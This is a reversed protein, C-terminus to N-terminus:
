ILKVNGYIYNSILIIAALSYQKMRNEFQVSKTQLYSKRNLKLNSGDNGIRGKTRPAKHQKSKLENVHTGSNLKVKQYM